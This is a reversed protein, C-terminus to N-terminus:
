VIEELNSVKHHSYKPIQLAYKRASKFRLIDQETKSDMLNKPVRNILYTTASPLKNKIEDLQQTSNDVVVIKEAENKFELIKDIKANEKEQYFVDDFLNSIGSGEVKYNQWDSNGFSLLYIKDGGHKLKKLFSVSDNFLYKKLDSFENGIIDKLKGIEINKNCTKGIENIHKELTYGDRRVKKYSKDWCSINIGNELIKNRLDVWFFKDTDFLTHDFDIFYIAM